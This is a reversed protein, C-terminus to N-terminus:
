AKKEFGDWRLETVAAGESAVFLHTPRRSHCLEDLFKDSDEGGPWAAAATPATERRGARPASLKALDTNQNRVM